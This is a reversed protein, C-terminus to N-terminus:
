LATHDKLRFRLKRVGDNCISLFETYDSPIKTLGEVDSEINSTLPHFNCLQELMYSHMRLVLFHLNEDFVNKLEYTLPKTEVIDQSGIFTHFSTNILARIDAPDIRGLLYYPEEIILVAGDLNVAPIAAQNDFLRFLSGYQNKLKIAAKVDLLYDPISAIEIDPGGIYVVPIGRKLWQAAFELLLLTKGSGSEGVVTTVSKQSPFQISDRSLFSQKLSVSLTSKKNIFEMMTPWDSRSHKRAVLEQAESLAIESQKALKKADKKAQTISLGTPLRMVSM